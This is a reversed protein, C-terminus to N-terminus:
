PPCPSSQRLGLALSKQREPQRTGKSRGVTTAACTFRLKACYVQVLEAPGNAGFAAAKVHTEVSLSDLLFQVLAWEDRLSPGLFLNYKLPMAKIQALDKARGVTAEKREHPM